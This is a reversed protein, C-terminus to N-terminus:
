NLKSFTMKKNPKNLRTKLENSLGKHLNLDTAIVRLFKSVDSVREEDLKPYMKVVVTRSTDQDLFPEVSRVKLAVRYSLDATIRRYSTANSLRNRELKLENEFEDFSVFASMM